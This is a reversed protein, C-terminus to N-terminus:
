SRAKVVPAPKMVFAVVVSDDDTDVDVGALVESVLPPSQRITTCAEEVTLTAFVIVSNAVCVM